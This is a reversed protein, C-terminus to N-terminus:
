YIKSERGFSFLVTVSEISFLFYESFPTTTFGLDFSDLSSFHCTALSAFSSVCLCTSLCASIIIVNIIDFITFSTLCFQHFRKM